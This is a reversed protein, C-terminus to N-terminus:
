FQFKIGGMITSLPTYQYADSSGTLSVMPNYGKRASAIALNDATVYISLSNFKIKEMWKKPFTYGLRINNLSLYSNSTLFRTSAMNAYRDAGNSLRPVGAAGQAAVAAKEEASMLDNWANRMDVHWNYSGAQDSHMLMAYTNDYGYGGIGYSCSVSLNFGYAELDVGFGGSFDPTALLGTYDSGAYPSEAGTVNVTQINAEPYKKKYEYVNSIYNNGNRGTTQLIDASSSTGWSGLNADYYGVYMAQGTEEDVGAYTPLNYEFLSHGVAMGGNMIMETESSIYDPLRKVKNMYHSGNLRVNLKVNRTDLAHINLQLEVGQNELAGDNIYEYSYGLSPAVYRQFLLNDTYKYFYDIEADLYKSISFELGLDITQAREWTLNPNGKYEWVYAVEGDVYEISYQDQYLNANIGGENGLVGWSLRLKGDKLYEKAPEMFNENTFMWMAGVSGFHGWRHGKAFKSSGDARYNATIGYRENYTYSATALYSELTQTLTYSSMSSMQVANGWELVNDGSTAAVHAMSGGMVSNRVYYTEHGAMLRISHDGITTNYELLENAMFAFFNQQTKSVRGIGAADGYFANTHTSNTVGAYQVGANVIFKLDKYLKFELTGSGTVQHQITNDRDYILAGAPNIGAGFGRGGGEYM